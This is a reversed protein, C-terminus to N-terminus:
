RSHRGELVRGLEGIRDGTETIRSEASRQVLRYEVLRIEAAFVSENYLRPM